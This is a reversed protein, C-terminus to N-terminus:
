SIYSCFITNKRDQLRYLALYNNLQNIKIFLITINENYYIINCNCKKEIRIKQIIGSLLNNVFPVSTNSSYLM